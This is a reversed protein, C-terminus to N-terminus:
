HQSGLVFVQLLWAHGQWFSAWHPAPLFHQPLLHTVAWHQASPSQPAPWHQLLPAQTAQQLDFSSQRAPWHQPTLV